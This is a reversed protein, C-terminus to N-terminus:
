ALRSSWEDFDTSPALEFETSEDPVPVDSKKSSDFDRGMSFGDELTKAAEAAGV